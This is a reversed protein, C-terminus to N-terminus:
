EDEEKGDEGNEAKEAELRLREEEEEKALRIREEKENKADDRDEQTVEGDEGNVFKIVLNDLAILVEKKFDDGKEDVWPNGAMNLTQLSKLGRLHPLQDAKEILNEDLSLWELALLKPFEEITEMKNKSADLKKLNPLEKMDKLSIIQNSAIVLETLNDLNAIGACNTLQNEAM